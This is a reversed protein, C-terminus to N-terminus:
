SDLPKQKSNLDTKQLHKGYVFVGVLSTLAAIISVLGATPMGKAALWVGGIIATMAIIFGLYVGTTQTNSDSYVAKRELDQRHEQQREAMAIIREAAGPLVDNYRELAEPPPIPGSFSQQQVRVETRRQLQQQQQNRRGM